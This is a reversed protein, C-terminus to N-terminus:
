QSPKRESCINVQSVWHGIFLYWNVCTYFERLVDFHNFYLAPLIQNSKNRFAYSHKIFSSVFIAMSSLDYETILKLFYYKKHKQGKNNFICFM